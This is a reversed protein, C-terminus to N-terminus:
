SCELGMATSRSHFHLGISRQTKVEGCDSHSDDLFCVVTFTPPSTPNFPLCVSNTAFFIQAPFTSIM